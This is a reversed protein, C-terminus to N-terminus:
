MEMVVRGDITGARMRDFIGNVNDLKDTSIHSSVAGDAAFELYSIHDRDPDLGRLSKHLPRQHEFIYEFASGVYGDTLLRAHTVDYTEAGDPTWVVGWAILLPNAFRQGINVRWLPVGAARLETCFHSVILVPDGSRRGENMMWRDLKAVPDM